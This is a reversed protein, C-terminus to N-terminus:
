GTEGAYCRVKVGASSEKASCGFEKKEISSLQSGKMAGIMSVAKAAKV